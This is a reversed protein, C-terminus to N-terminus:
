GWDPLARAGEGARGMPWLRAGIRYDEDGEGAVVACLIRWGRGGGAVMKGLGAVRM